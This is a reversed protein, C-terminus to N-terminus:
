VFIYLCVFLLTLLSNRLQYGNSALRRNLEDINEYALRTYTEEDSKIVYFYDVLGGDSSQFDEVLLHTNNQSSVALYSYAKSVKVTWAKGEYADEPDAEDDRHGAMGQLVYIPSQPNVIENFNDDDLHVQFATIKGKKIPLMREYFHVHGSVVLDVGYKVLLAEFDSFKESNSACSADRPRSCYFPRHTYVIIWPQNERNSNAQQLDQKLWNLMYKELNPYEIILDLNFSTFHMNGINYSYYHNQSQDFNPMKFRMNFNSFNAETEHNGATIMYPMVATFDQVTRMYKDGRTGAMRELNYAIDGVHIFASIDTFNNEALDILRNVTTMGQDTVDMDAFMVVKTEQGAYNPSPLYFEFPGQAKALSTDDTGYCYYEYTQSYDLQPFDFIHVYTSYDGSSYTAQFSNVAKATIKQSGQSTKLSIYASSCEEITHFIAKITNNSTPASTFADSLAIHIQQPTCSDSSSKVHQPFLPLLFFFLITIM